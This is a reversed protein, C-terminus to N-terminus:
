KDNKEEESLKKLAARDIKGNKNLPFQKINYFINPIMFAPLQKRLQKVIEKKEMGGEYFAVIKQEKEDFMCSVRPILELRDMAMEIEGLEIRHGMHKIQFDKRGTYCLEGSENYYGLDGTRYILELYRHNLPNQVYAKQTQDPNNYYGLTLATGGVCIEGKKGSEKVLQEQEDLLFVKENPFAEGIPLTDGPEFEKNIKYYTCNCTIETPGYLNVYQVQPLYSRWINLQKIPMVEGSFLVKNITQPVKYEFGKLQSVMCLASVAWILTTVKNECLCDLLQTPFSFKQRPIIVMAAGMKLTSYIDKVSVDFDFPAQNGIVDDKTIKFIDTFCEIFDLVSRHSVVVGKPVGTSGSTFIGYLPQTDTAEKQIQALREEHVKEKELEEIWLVKPKLDELKKDLSDESINNSLLDWGKNLKEWEKEYAKGTIILPQELTDLIQKIRQPPQKIDLMVYFCGAYVIGMFAAVAAVSKDMFVAIPMGPTTKQELASGIKQAREKLAGYTCSTQMDIFATKDTDNEAAAELYELISKM